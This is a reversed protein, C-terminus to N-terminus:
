NYPHGSGYERNEDEEAKPAKAKLAAIYERIVKAEKPMVRDMQKLATIADMSDSM